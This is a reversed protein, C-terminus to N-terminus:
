CGFVFTMAFSKGIKVYLYNMFVLIILSLIPTLVLDTFYKDLNDLDMFVGLVTELFFYQFVYIYLTNKGIYSIYRGLKSSQFLSSRMKFLCFLFVSGCLGIIIKYFLVSFYHTLSSSTNFLVFPGLHEYYIKLYDNNWFCFLFLFVTASLFSVLRIKRYVLREFERLFTGFLFCIYMENFKYYVVFLSLVITFFLVYVNKYKAYPYYFVFCLFISKLFWLCYFYKGLLSGGYIYIYSCLFGYIICPFILQIFKKKLFKGFSYKAINGAFFGSIMMFLPMHFSYIGIHIDNELYDTVGYQIVHGWIVLFMAFCKLADLWLIRNLSVPDQKICEM